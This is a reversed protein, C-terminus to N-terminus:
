SAFFPLFPSSLASFPSLMTSTPSVPLPSSSTLTTCIYFSLSLVYGAYDVKILVEGEGPQKVAAEEVNIVDIEGQEHIQAVHHTKPISQTSMVRYQLHQSHPSSPSSPLHPSLQRTLASLRVTSALTSTSRLSTATLARLM